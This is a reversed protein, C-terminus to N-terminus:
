LQARLAKWLKRCVDHGRVIIGKMQEIPESRGGSLIEIEMLYEDCHDLERLACEAKRILEKRITRPM